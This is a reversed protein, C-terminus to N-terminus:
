STRGSRSRRKGTRTSIEQPPRGGHVHQRLARGDEPLRRHGAEPARHGRQPTRSRRPPPESLLGAGLHGPGELHGRRRDGEGRRQVPERRRHAVHRRLSAGSRCFSALVRDRPQRIRGRGGLGGSGHAAHRAPPCDPIRTEGTPVKWCKHLRVPETSRSGAALARARPLPTASSCRRTDMASNECVAPRREHRGRRRRHLHRPVARRVHRCLGGRARWAASSSRTRIRVDTRPEEDPDRQARRPPGALAPGTAGLGVSRRRDFRRDGVPSLEQTRRQDAVPGGNRPRRRRLATLITAIDETSIERQVTDASRETSFSEVPGKPQHRLPMFTALDAMVSEVHLGTIFSTLDLWHSGIDGVARLAGGRDPELRWNWDTEM